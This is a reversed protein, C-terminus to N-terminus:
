VSIEYNMEYQSQRNNNNSNTNDNNKISNQKKNQQELKNSIELAKQFPMPRKYYHTHHHHSQQHNNHYTHPDSLDYPPQEDIYLFQSNKYKQLETESNFKNNTSIYAGGGADPSYYILMGGDPGNGSIGSITDHNTPGIHTM